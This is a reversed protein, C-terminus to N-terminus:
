DPNAVIGALLNEFDALMQTVGPAEFRDASYSIGIKLKGGQESIIVSLGADVSSTPIQLPTLSLGALNLLPQKEIRLDFFVFPM